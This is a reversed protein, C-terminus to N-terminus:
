LQSQDPNIIDNLDSNTMPINESDSVKSQNLNMKHLQKEYYKSKFKSRYVSNQKLYEVDSQIFQIQKIVKQLKQSNQYLRHVQMENEIHTKLLQYNEYNKVM